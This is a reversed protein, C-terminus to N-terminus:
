IMLEDVPGSTSIFLSIWFTKAFTGATVSPKQIM